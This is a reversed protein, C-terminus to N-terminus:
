IGCLSSNASVRNTNNTVKEFRQAQPRESCIKAPGGRLEIEKDLLDAKLKLISFQVKVKGHSHSFAELGNAALIVWGCRRHDCIVVHKGQKSWFDDALPLTAIYEPLHLPSVLKERIIHREPLYDWSMCYCSAETSQDVHAAASLTHKRWRYMLNKDPDRGTEVIDQLHAMGIRYELFLLLLHRHPLPMNRRWSKDWVAM